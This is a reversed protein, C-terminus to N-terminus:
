IFLELNLVRNANKWTIKEYVTALINGNAKSWKLWDLHPSTEISCCIDLGFMIRDQFEEIFKFAFDEDRKFANLGSNASIDTYLNSYQRLLRPIAGGDLVKGSPYGNKVTSNKIDGSIESWFAASHGIMKLKPFNKLVAELKPLGIEDIVGYTNCDATITHFIVPLELQECAALYFQMLHNDWPIRATLEGVGKCGLSKYKSLLKVYYDVDANEPIIPLRPDPCCFPIFRDPYCDMIEAIEGFSQPECPAEANNFPLIVSKDIGFKEMINVYQKASLFPGSDYFNIKPNIYVHSHIDIIM